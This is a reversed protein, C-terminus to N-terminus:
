VPRLPTPIGVVGLLVRPPRLLGARDCGQRRLRGWAHSWWRWETIGQGYLHDISSAADAVLLSIYGDAEGVGLSDAFHQGTRGKAYICATLQKNCREVVPGRHKRSALFRPTAGRAASTSCMARSSPLWSGAEMSALTSGGTSALVSGGAGDQYNGGPTAAM